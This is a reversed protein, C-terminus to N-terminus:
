QEHSRTGPRRGPNKKQIGETNKEEDEELVKFPLQKKGKDFGFLLQNAFSDLSIGKSQLVALHILSIESSFYNTTWNGHM